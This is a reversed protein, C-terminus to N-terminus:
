AEFLEKGERFFPVRFFWQFVHCNVVSKSNSVIFFESHSIYNIIETIFGSWKVGFFFSALLVSSSSSASLESKEFSCLDDILRFLSSSSKECSVKDLKNLRGELKVISSSWSIADISSPTLSDSILIFLKCLVDLLLWFLLKARDNM